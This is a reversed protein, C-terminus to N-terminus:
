GAAGDKTPPDRLSDIEARLRASDDTAIRELVRVREELKAIIADREALAGELDEVRARRYRRRGMTDEADEASSQGLCARLRRPRMLFMWFFMGFFIWMWPFAYM